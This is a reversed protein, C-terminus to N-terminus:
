AINASVCVCGVQANANIQITLIIWRLSIVAVRLLNKDQSQDMYNKGREKLLM